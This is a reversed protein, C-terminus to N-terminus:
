AARRTMYVAMAEHDEQVRQRDSGTEKTIAELLAILVAQNRARVAGHPMQLLLVYAQQMLDIAEDEKNM